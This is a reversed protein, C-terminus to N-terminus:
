GTKPPKFIQVITNFIIWFELPLSWNEVYNIDLKTREVVDQNNKMEGRYGSIQALGTIGPKVFARCHYGEAIQSFKRNHIISQPRPGVVSMNGFFVNLFEPLRDFSTKRLLSGLPYTGSDSHPEGSSRDQRDISTTRFNFSRFPLNNLGGRTERSFLPGPSQISQFVKVLLSLPPLIFLVVPLSILLDVTRKIVRNVPDELPEDTLSVFNKGHISFSSVAHRFIEPLNEMMLLRAGAKRTVDVIQNLADRDIPFELLIIQGIGEQRIIRYLMASDSVRALHLVRGEEEDDEGPRGRLGFGFAATELIWKNVQRAKEVPGILLTRQNYEASFLQDALRAPILFHCILFVVYVSGLFAFLWAIGMHRFEPEMGLALTLLLVIGISVTQKLALTHYNLFGGALLTAAADRGRVAAVILGTVAAVNYLLFDRPSAVSGGHSMPLILRLFMWYLATLVIALIGHYANWLGRIRNWLM